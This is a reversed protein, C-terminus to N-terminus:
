ATVMALLDETSIRDDLLRGAAEAITPLVIALEEPTYDTLGAIVQCLKAGDADKGNWNKGIDSLADRMRLGREDILDEFWPGIEKCAKKILATDEKAIGPMDLELYGLYVLMLDGANLPQEAGPHLAPTFRSLIEEIKATTTATGMKRFYGSRDKQFEFAACNIRGLGDLSKLGLMRMKCNRLHSIQSTHLNGEENCAWDALAALEPHSINSLLHGIIQTFHVRGSERRAEGQNDLNSLQTTSSPQTTATTM